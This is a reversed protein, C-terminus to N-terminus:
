KDSVHIYSLWYFDPTTLGLSHLMIQRMSLFYLLLEASFLCGMFTHYATVPKFQLEYRLALNEWGEISGCAQQILRVM